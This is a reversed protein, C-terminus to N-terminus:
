EFLWFAEIANQSVQASLDKILARKQSFGEHSLNRLRSESKSTNRTWRAKSNFEHDRTENHPLVKFRVICLVLNIWYPIFCFQSLLLWTGLQCGTTSITQLFPLPKSWISVWYCWFDCFLRGSRAVNTMRISSCCQLFSNFPRWYSFEVLSVCLIVSPYFYRNSVFM